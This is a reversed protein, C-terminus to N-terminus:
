RATSEGDGAAARRRQQQLAPRRPARAARGQVAAHRRVDVLGVRIDQRPSLRSSLYACACAGSLSLALFFSSKQAARSRASVRERGSRVARPERAHNTHAVARLASKCAAELPLHRRVVRAAVAGVGAHAELLHHPHAPQLLVRILPHELRLFLLRMRTAEVQTLNLGEALHSWVCELSLSREGGVACAAQLRTCRAAGM